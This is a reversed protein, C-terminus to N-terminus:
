LTFDCHILVCIPLIMKYVLHNGSWCSLFMVQSVMSALKPFCQAVGETLPSPIQFGSFCLLLIMKTIGSLDTRPLSFKAGAFVLFKPSILLATKPSPPM